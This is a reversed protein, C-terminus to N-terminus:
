GAMNIRVPAICFINKKKLRKLAFVIGSSMAAPLAAPIAVTFITLARNITLTLEFGLIIQPPFTAIISLVSFIFM